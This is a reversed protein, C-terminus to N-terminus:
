YNARAWQGNGRACASGTATKSVGNLTIVQEFDRCRLTGLMHESLAQVSGYGGEYTWEIIEGIQADTAAAQAANQLGIQDKSLQALVAPPLIGLAAETTARSEQYAQMAKIQEKSLRAPPTQPLQQRQLTQPSTYSSRAATSRNALSRPQYTNTNPYRVAGRPGYATRNVTNLSRNVSRNVQNLGRTAQNNFQTLGRSVQNNLVNLSRNIPATIPAVLPAPNVRLGLQAQAPESSVGLLLMMAVALGFGGFANSKPWVLKSSHAKM